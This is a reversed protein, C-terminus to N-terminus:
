NTRFLCHTLDTDPHLLSSPHVQLHDKLGELGELEPIIGDDVAQVLSDWEEELLRVFDFFTTSFITNIMELSPDALAFLVNM